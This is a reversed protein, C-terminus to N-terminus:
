TELMIRTGATCVIIHFSGSAADKGSSGGAKISKLSARPYRITDQNRFIQGYLEGHMLM